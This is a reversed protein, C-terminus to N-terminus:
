FDVVFLDYKTDRYMTDCVKARKLEEKVEKAQEEPM